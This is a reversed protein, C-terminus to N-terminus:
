FKRCVEVMIRVVSMDNRPVFHRLLRLRDGVDLDLNSRRKVGRLSLEPTGCNEVRSVIAGIPHSDPTVAENGCIPRSNRRSSYTVVNSM